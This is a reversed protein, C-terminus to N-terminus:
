YSRKRPSKRPSRRPSFSFTSGIKKVGPVWTAPVISRPMPISLDASNEETLTKSGSAKELSRVLDVNLQEIQKLRHTLSMELNFYVSNTLHTNREAIMAELRKLSVDGTGTARCIASMGLVYNKQMGLETIVEVVNEHQCLSALQEASILDEDNNRELLRSILLRVLLKDKEIDREQKKDTEAVLAALTKDVVVGTILNLLFFVTFTFFFMVFIFMAKNAMLPRAYSTWGEVTMLEFLAFISMPITGFWERVQRVEEDGESPNYMRRGIFATAICACVFFWIGMFAFVWGLTKVSNVLSDCLVQLVPFVRGLRLIRFLRLVQVFDGDIAHELHEHTAVWGIEMAAMVTVTLDFINWHKQFGTFFDKPGFVVLKAVVELTWFLFFSYHILHWVNVSLLQPHDITIGIIVANLGIIVGIAMEYRLDVFILRYKGRPKAALAFLEPDESEALIEKVTQVKPLLPTTETPVDEEQYLRTLDM